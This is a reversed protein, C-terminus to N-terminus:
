PLTIVICGEVEPSDPFGGGFDPIYYYPALFFTKEDYVKNNESTLGTFMAPHYGYFDGAGIYTLGIAFPNYYIIGDSIWLEIYSARALSLTCMGALDSPLGNVYYGDYPAMVRYRDFGEAKLITVDNTTGFFYNDTFTGTGLEVWNYEKQVTITTTKNGGVAILDDAVNLTLTVDLEVGVALPEVNVTIQTKTEGEAFSFGTVTCGELPEEDVVASITVEGSLTGEGSARTVEVTFTPDTSPVSVGTLSSCLFSVGQKNYTPGEQDTNCATFLGAVLVMLLVSIKNLYKM